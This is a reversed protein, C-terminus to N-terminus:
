HLVSTKRRNWEWNGNSTKLIYRYVRQVHSRSKRVPLLGRGTISKSLGAKTVATSPLAVVFKVDYNEMSCVSVLLSVGGLGRLQTSQVRRGSRSSQLVLTKNHVLYNCQLEPQLEMVHFQLSSFTQALTCLFTAVITSHSQIQYSSM